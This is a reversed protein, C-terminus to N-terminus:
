WPRIASNALKKLKNSFIKDASECFLSVALLYSSIESPLAETTFDGHAINNRKEVMEQLKFWLFSRRHQQRTVKSFIDDIGYMVFFKRVEDSQPSKMSLVKAHDLLPSTSSDKWLLSDHLAFATLGKKRNEWSSAVLNEISSKSHRLRIIEPVQDSRVSQSNLWLLAEENLARIYREYHGSLLVVSARGHARATSAKAGRALSDRVPSLTRLSKIEDLGARLDLLAASSM